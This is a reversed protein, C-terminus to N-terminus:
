SVEVKVKSKGPSAASDDGGSEDKDLESKVEDLVANMLVRFGELSESVAKKSHEKFDPPILADVAKSAEEFARKQHEVFEGFPKNQSSKESQNKEESM